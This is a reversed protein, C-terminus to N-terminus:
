KLRILTGGDVWHSKVFQCQTFLPPGSENRHLQSVLMDVAAMGIQANNQNMGAWNRIGPTLDLHVLGVDRPSNVNMELLWDRIKDHLTFIVDPQHRRFWAKFKERGDLSFKLHPLSGGFSMLHEASHFGSSFRHGVMRDIEPDLVLGPHRYGLNLVKKVAELATFYQDNSVFHVPPSSTQVGIVICGYSEWLETFEEPLTRNETVYAVILGHVNRSKFKKILSGVLSGEGGALPFENLEYGVEAARIRCGTQWQDFPHVRKLSGKESAATLYGIAAKCRPIQSTRLQTMLNAVMVNTRYGMERAIKQIRQRTEERIKPDNRLALSVTSKGQGAATAIDQM